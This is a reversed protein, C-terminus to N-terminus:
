PRWEEALLSSTVACVALNALLYMDRSKSNSSTPKSQPRPEATNFYPRFFPVLSTKVWKPWFMFALFIRLPISTVINQGKQDSWWRWFYNPRFFPCLMNQGKQDSWWRWFNNLRLSASNPKYAHPLLYVITICSYISTYHLSIRDSWLSWSASPHSTIGYLIYPTGV